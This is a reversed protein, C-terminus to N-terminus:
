VLTVLAPFNTTVWASLTSQTKNDPHLSPDISAESMYYDSVARTVTVIAARATSSTVPLTIASSTSISLADGSGPDSSQFLNGATVVVPNRGLVSSVLGSGEERIAAILYYVMNPQLEGGGLVGAVTDILVSKGNAGTGYGFFLAHASTLGTLAYGLVRQLYAQLETDGGTIRDLFQLWTPCDGRPAAGTVKTMHLAPDCPRLEGTKLDVVCGPTNLLMPDADWQEVTAALRRDARALREVAAVTRAAGLVLAARPNDSARAARRCLERALDTALLTKDQAWRVGDWALWQDWVACYRLGAENERAFALALDEESRGAVGQAGEIRAAPNRWGLRQAKAFIAAYGTREPKFGKWKTEAEARNYKASTASWELWLEFGLEGLATLAQGVAIWTGYDNADLYTLAQRLEALLTPTVIVDQAYPLTTTYPSVAAPVSREKPLPPPFAAKLSELLTASLTETTARYTALEPVRGAKKPWAVGGALRLLRPPDTVARDTGLGAAIAKLQAKMVAHDTLLEPLQWYGHMRLHPIAGTKVLASPPAGCDMAAQVAAEANDDADFWLVRTGLVDAAKARGARNTEERRLAAGVYINVGPNLNIKAALDAAADLEALPFQRAFRLKGQDDTWAIEVLGHCEDAAILSRFLM